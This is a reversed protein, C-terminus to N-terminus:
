EILKCASVFDELQKENLGTAPIGDLRKTVKGNEFLLVTPYVKVSYKEVLSELDDVMVRLFCRAKKRAYKDFLPLFRESFPCWSAFFLVAVKDASKLIKNFEIESKIVESM